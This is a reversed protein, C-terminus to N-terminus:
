KRPSGRLDRRSGSLRRASVGHRSAWRGHAFSGSSCSRCTCTGSTCPGSACSGLACSRLAAFERFESSWTAREPRGPGWGCPNHALRVRPRVQRRQLVPRLLQQLRVVPIRLQLEPLPWLVPLRIWQLLQPRLVRSVRRSLRWQSLRWQSSRRPRPGDWEVRCVTRGGGRPGTWDSGLTWEEIQAVHNDGQKQHTDRRDLSRLYFRAEVRNRGRIESFPVFRAIEGQVVSRALPPLM